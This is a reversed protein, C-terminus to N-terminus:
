MAMVIVIVMLSVMVEVSEVNMMKQQQVVNMIVVQLHQNLVGVVWIMLTVVM